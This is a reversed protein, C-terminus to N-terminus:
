LQEGIVSPPVGLEAFGFRSKPSNIWGNLHKTTNQRFQEPIKHFQNAGMEGDMGYDYYPVIRQKYYNILCEQM